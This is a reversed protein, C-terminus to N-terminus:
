LERKLEGAKNAEDLVARKIIALLEEVAPRGLGAETFVKMTTSLVVSVVTIIFTFQIGADNPHGTITLLDYNRNMLKFVDVATKRIIDDRITNPELARLFEPDDRM